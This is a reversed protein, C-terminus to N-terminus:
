NVQKEHACLLHQFREETDELELVMHEKQQHLARVEEDHEAYLSDYENAKMSLQKEFHKQEGEHQCLQSLFLIPLAADGSAFSWEREVVHTSDSRM